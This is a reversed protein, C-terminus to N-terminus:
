EFTVRGTATASITEKGAELPLEVGSSDAAKAMMPMASRFTYQNGESGNPTNLHVDSLVYKKAKIANQIVGAKHQFQHIIDLTMADELAVMTEPSVSFYLSEIAVDEGLNELVKAMEQFDKSKLQLHGEAVWGDVKGKQNYNAYQRINNTQIEIKKSKQADELVKNLNASVAKTLEPLSKGTKRSLITANMLDKEVTRSVETSFHFVSQSKKAATETATEAFATLSALAFPLAILLKKM